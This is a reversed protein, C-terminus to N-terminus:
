PSKPGECGRVRGLFGRFKWFRGSCKSWSSCTSLSSSSLWPIHCSRYHSQLHWPQARPSRPPQGSSILASQRRDSGTGQGVECRSRRKEPCTSPRSPGDVTTKSWMPPKSPSRRTSSSRNPTLSSFAHPRLDLGRRVCGMSDEAGLGEQCLGSVRKTPSPNEWGLWSGKGDHEQGLTGASM